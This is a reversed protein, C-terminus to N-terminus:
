HSLNESEWYFDRLHNFNVVDVGSNQAYTAFKFDDTLILYKGAAISLIGIDSLGFKYFGKEHSVALSQVYEEDIQKVLSNKMAEFYLRMSEQHLGNTLNSAETLVNPSVVIKNFQDLFKVLLEYDPQQFISTRKFRSVDDLAAGAYLLLLMNADVFVGKSRYKKILGIM